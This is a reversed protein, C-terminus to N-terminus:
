LFRMKEEELDLETLHKRIVEEDIKQGVSNKNLLWTRQHNLIDLYVTRTEQAMQENDAMNSHSAWKAAM